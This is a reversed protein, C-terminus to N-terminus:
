RGLRDLIREVNEAIKNRRAILTNLRSKKTSADLTESDRVKNIQKTIDSITQALKNVQKRTGLLQRNDQM